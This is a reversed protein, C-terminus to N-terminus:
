REKVHSGNSTPAVPAVARLAVPATQSVTGTVRVRSLQSEYSDLVGRLAQIVSSAEEMSFTGSKMWQELSTVLGRQHRIFQAMFHVTDPTM